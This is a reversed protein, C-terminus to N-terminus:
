DAIMGGTLNAIAGTMGGARDAAVFVALDRSLAEVPPSPCTSSCGARSGPGPSASPTSPSTSPGPPASWADAHAEVDDEDLADV